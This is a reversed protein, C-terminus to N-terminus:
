MALEKAIWMKLTPGAAAEQFESFRSVNRYNWHM